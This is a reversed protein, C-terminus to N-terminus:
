LNLAKSLDCIDHFANYKSTESDVRRIDRGDLEEM